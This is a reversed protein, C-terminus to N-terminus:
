SLVGTALRCARCWHSLHNSLILIGSVRHHSPSDFHGMQAFASQTGLTSGSGADGGQEAVRRQGVSQPQARCGSTGREVDDAQGVGADDGCRHAPCWHLAMIGWCREMPNDKSHYPPSYLRQIPKGITDVGQMMRHLVQTRVGSSESGNDMKIQVRDIEGQETPSCGQWWAALTDVIFASTKSASGFTVYLPGTDEDGIGGPIYNEKCGLAHDSAQPDGRIYGGRSFAGITVTAKCDM